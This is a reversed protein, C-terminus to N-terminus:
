DNYEDWKTKDFMVDAENLCEVFIRFEHHVFFLLGNDNGGTFVSVRVYQKNVDVVRMKVPSQSVLSM